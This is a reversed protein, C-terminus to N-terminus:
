AVQLLCYANVDLPEWRPAARGSRRGGKLVARGSRTNLDPKSGNMHWKYKAPHMCATAPRPALVIDDQVRLNSARAFKFCKCDCTGLLGLFEFELVHSFENARLFSRRFFSSLRVSESLFM